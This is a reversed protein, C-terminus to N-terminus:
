RFRSSSEFNSEFRSVRADICLSASLHIRGTPSGSPANWNLGPGHMMSADHM